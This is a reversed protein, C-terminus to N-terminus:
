EFRARQDQQAAHGGVGRQHRQGRDAHDAIAFDPIIGARDQHDDGPHIGGTEDRGTADEALLIPLRHQVIMSPQRHRQSNGAKQYRHSNREDFSSRMARQEGIQATAQQHPFILQTQLTRYTLMLADDIRWPQTAATSRLGMRM